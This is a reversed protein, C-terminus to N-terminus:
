GVTALVIGYSNGLVPLTRSMGGGPRSGPVLGVGGAARGAVVAGNALVDDVPVDDVPVDDVPVDGAAADDAAPRAPAGDVCGPGALDDALGAAVAAGGAPVPVPRATGPLAMGPEAM